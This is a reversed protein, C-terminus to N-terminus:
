VNSINYRCFPCNKSEINNRCDAHLVNQCCPMIFLVSDDDWEDACIPCENGSLRNWQITGRTNRLEVNQKKVLEIKREMEKMKADNSRIQQKALSLSLEIDAVSGVVYKEDLALMEERRFGWVEYAWEHDHDDM